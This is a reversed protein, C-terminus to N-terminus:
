AELQWSGDAKRCARGNITETRGDKLTITETFTRCTLSAHPKGSTPTVTGGNGTKPNHWKGTTGKPGETMMKNICKKHIEQDEPTLARSVDGGGTHRRKPAPGPADAQASGMSILAVASVTTAFLATFAARRSIQTM